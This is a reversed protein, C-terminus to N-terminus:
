RCISPDPCQEDRIQSTPTSRRLGSLADESQPMGNRGSFLQPHIPPPAPSPRADTLKGDSPQEGTTELSSIDTTQM